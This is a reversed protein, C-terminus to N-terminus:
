YFILLVIMIIFKIVLITTNKDIEVIAIDIGFVIKGWRM